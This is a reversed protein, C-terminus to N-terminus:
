EKAGHKRLLEIIKTHDICGKKAYWLPTHGNNDKANVDAGALLLVEAVKYGGRRVPGGRRVAEHLPTRGYRKEKVHVDAGHAILVEATKYNRKGAAEYVPTRGWHSEKVNVDVGRSLLTKVIEVSQGAALHLPTGYDSEANVDAGNSVLLDFIASNGGVAAAQLATGRGKVSLNVKAGSALLLKVVDEHGNLAADGLPHCGDVAAANVDAGKDILQKVIELFGGQSAQHLLTRGLAETKFTTVDAGQSLLYEFVEKQGFSSAWYAPTWGLKDPTDVDMGSEVLQRVKSVDGKLVANQLDPINVGTGIFQKSVDAKTELIVYHLITWGELGKANVNAGADILAKVIGAHGQWNAYFIPTYENEESVRRNVDAGHSILLRVAEEDDCWMAYLLPTFRNADVADVKAGNELLLKVVQTQGACAAALLPTWPKDGESANVDAGQAIFKKVQELNGDEAAQVLSKTADEKQISSKEEARATLVLATPVTLVALLLVITAAILSPCKYFKKGPKMITKIREEINSVPGAVALSPVPRISEHKAALTEVIATSYDRPSANLRAIAMEDCCKEREQRIKRNAWWVFPHFWFIAQVIVQLFNVAADFRIIHSLEHGLLSKCRKSNKLSLLDAPLYISGRLLGWVFPQSIGDVQWVGPSSKIGHASFLNEIDSLLEAPLPKRQRWLWLSARLAKLLNFILFAIAGLMWGAGLWQRITFKAPRERVMPAPTLKVPDSPSELPESITTLSGVVEFLMAPKEQPLIAVPVTLLPPVLCKALVILWLLYRVHASKNRLVLSVAAIVVVLLAIQWSQTLLYDTVRTLYTEM